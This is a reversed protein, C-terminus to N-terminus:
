MLQPYTIYTLFAAFIVVYWIVLILEIPSLKRPAGNM